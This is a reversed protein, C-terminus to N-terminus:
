VQVPWVHNPRQGLSTHPTLELVPASSDAAEVEKAEPAQVWPGDLALIPLGDDDDVTPGTM